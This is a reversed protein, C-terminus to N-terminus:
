QLDDCRVLVKLTITVYISMLKLIEVAAYEDTLDCRRRSGYKNFYNLFSPKTVSDSNSVFSCFFRV